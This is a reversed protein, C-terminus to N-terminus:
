SRRRSGLWLGIALGGAVLGWPHKAVWTKWSMGRKIAEAGLKLERTVESAGATIKSVGENLDVRLADVSAAVKARSRELQQRVQASTQDAPEIRTLQKVEKM